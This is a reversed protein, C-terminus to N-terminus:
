DAVPDADSRQRLFDKLSIREAQELLRRLTGLATEMEPRGHGVMERRIKWEM